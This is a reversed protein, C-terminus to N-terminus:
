IKAVNYIYKKEKKEHMVTINEDKELEELIRYFSSKSCLGQEEVLIERLQMASIQGYKAILSKLITKIHDKSSKAIKRILNERLTPITRQIQKVQQHVVRPQELSDLREKHEEIHRKLPEHSEEIEKIKEKIEEIRPSLHEASELQKLKSTVEELKFKLSIIDRHSDEFNSLKRDIKEVQNQIPDLSYHLDIMERLEEKTSPLNKMNQQLEYIIKDQHLNQHYLFNLWEFIKFVDKKVSGFSDQLNNNIKELKEDRKKILFFGM